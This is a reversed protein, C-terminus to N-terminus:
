LIQGWPLYLRTSRPPCLRQLLPQLPYQQCSNVPDIFLHCNLQPSSHIKFLFLAPLSLFPFPHKQCSCYRWCPSHSLTCRTSSVPEFHLERSAWRTFSGANDSSHSQNYSHCPNTPPLFLSASLTPMCILTWKVWDQVKRVVKAPSKCNDHDNCFVRM